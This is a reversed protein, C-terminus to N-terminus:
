PPLDMAKCGGAQEILTALESDWLEAHNLATTYSNPDRRRPDAGAALLQRVAAARRSASAEYLARAGAATKADAGRELLLRLQSDDARGAAAVLTSSSLSPGDVLAGADLLAGVSEVTCAHVADGKRM